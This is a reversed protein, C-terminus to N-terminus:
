SKFTKRFWEDLMAKEAYLRDSSAQRGPRQLYFKDDVRADAQSIVQGQQSLTELADAGIGHGAKLCDRRQRALM